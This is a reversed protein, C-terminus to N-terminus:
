RSERGQGRAARKRTPKRAAINEIMLLASEPDSLSPRERLSMSWQKRALTLEGERTRGKLLLARGGPVLHRAVYGLLKPLPALARATVCDAQLPPLAEIRAAHVTVPIETERSVARLFAAKRGDSEVLHVEGAGLIALVLGPFGGGSGLDALRRPRDAPAPPLAELLQASDLMHREWLDGPSRRSILNVKQNWELLLAAYRMLALGQTESLRYRAALRTLGPDEEPVVAPM